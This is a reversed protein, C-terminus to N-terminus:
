AKMGLLKAHEPCYHNAEGYRGPDATVTVAKWDKPMNGGELNQSVPIDVKKKCGTFDCRITQVYTM